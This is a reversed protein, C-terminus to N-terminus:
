FQLQVFEVSPVATSERCRSAVQVSFDRISIAKAIHIVDSHRRDDVAIGVDEELYKKCEDWFTGYHTKSGSNLQRLHIVVDPDEMEIAQKM